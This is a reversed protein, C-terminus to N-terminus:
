RKDLIKRLWTFCNVGFIRHFVRTVKVRRVLNPELWSKSFWHITYTDNTSLVKGTTDDFPSFFNQPYYTFNQITQKQGNLILKNKIAVDTIAKVNTSIDYEGNSKIFIRNSYTALLEGIFAGGKESAMIGTSVHDNSEFGSFGKENLFRDFSKVVEVDTDLYIGGHNYLVWLRAYDSVFAWKRVEYAQRCYANHSVDFNDENWEIIEYDPCFKRWSKIYKNVDNPKPKRGFWCYHITKPIM